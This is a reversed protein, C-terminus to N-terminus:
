RAVVAIKQITARTEPKEERPKEGSPPIPRQLVFTVTLENPKWAKQEKLTQLLRTIDFSVVPTAHETHTPLRPVFLSLNGIFYICHFDPPERWPWPLNIYVEYYAGPNGPFDVGELNVVVAHAKERDSILRDLKAAAEPALKLEVHTPETGLEVKAPTAVLEKPEATAAQKAVFQELTPPPYLIWDPGDDDYRYDLQTITNLVDKGSLSVVNRNEDYFQFTTNMWNADSTPNSRGGGQYLWQKWLRDINSHHAWFVPDNAAKDPDCMAGGVVCHIVNHPQQELDGTGSDFQIPAPVPKGGFSAGLAAEFNLDSFTTSYSAASAPVMGGANMTPDRDAFYLSNSSDAPERYPLPITRENPSTYNWYPLTLYPDGSAARLIREFYYLYMRHWSLFFYSSHQCGNWLPKLPTEYTGHMNAQYYWSLPDSAPRSMMVQVGHRLSAIETASLTAIDKRVHVGWCLPVVVPSQQQGSTPPLAVASSLLVVLLLLSRAWCGESFKRM